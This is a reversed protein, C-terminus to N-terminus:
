DLLDFYEDPWMECFAYRCRYWDNINIQGLAVEGKRSTIFDYLMVALPVLLHSKHTYPNTRTESQAPESYGLARVHEIARLYLKKKTMQWQKTM